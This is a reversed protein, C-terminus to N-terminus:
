SQIEQQDDKINKLYQIFPTPNLHERTTSEILCPAICKSEINPTTNHIFLLQKQQDYAKTAEPNTLEFSIYDNDNYLSLLEKLLSVKYVPIDEPLQHNDNLAYISAITCSPNTAQKDYIYDPNQNYLHQYRNPNSTLTSLDPRTM